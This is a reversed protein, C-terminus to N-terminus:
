EVVVIGELCGVREEGFVIYKRGETGKCLSHGAKRFSGLLVEERRQRVRSMGM